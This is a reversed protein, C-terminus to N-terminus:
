HIFLKNEEFWDRICNPESLTNETVKFCKKGGVLPTADKACLFHDCKVREIMSNVYHLLAHRFHFVATGLM